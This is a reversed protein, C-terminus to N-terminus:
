CPGFASTFKIVINLQYIDFLLNVNCYMYTSDLPNSKAEGGLIKKM